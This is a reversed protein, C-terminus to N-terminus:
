KKNIIRLSCSGCTEETGGCSLCEQRIASKLQTKTNHRRKVATNSDHLRCRSGDSLAAGSCQTVAPNVGSCELCHDAVAKAFDSKPLARRRSELAKARNEPSNLNPNGSIKTASGVIERRIEDGFRNETEVLPTVASLPIM